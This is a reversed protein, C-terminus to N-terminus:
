SKRSFIALKLASSADYVSSRDICRSISDKFNYKEYVKYVLALMKQALDKWNCVQFVWGTEGEIILDPGCGVADSVIAPICCNFAENIVLGWTESGDSPLVICDSVVYGKTIEGQNMFGVFSIPINANRCWQEMETKLPGDGVVLGRLDLAALQPDKSALEVAHKFGRLFDFPRKRDILKGCFLFVVSNSPLGWDRRLSTRQQSWKQFQCKFFDNDVFHPCLFIKDPSAGYHLYYDRSRKGVALFGTFRKMLQRYIIEKAFKWIINRQTTLQSDGRVFVPIQRRNAAVIAQIYCRSAWGHVILADIIGIDMLRGIDPCSTGWFGSVGPKKAKNELFRYKYDELLPIDWEFPVSFGALAQDKSDAKHAFWVELDIWNEKTLARYWATYYQVPHTCLIVVKKKRNKFNM